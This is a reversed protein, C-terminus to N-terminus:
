AKSSRRVLLALLVIHTWFLLPVGLSPIFFAAHLEPPVNYVPGLAAARVLDFVGWLNFIWLMWPFIRSSRLALSLLALTAAAVDGWAAGNTWAPNIGNGTVGPAIFALGIYRFAHLYLLPEAATRLDQSKAWPWLYRRVVLGWVALGFVVAILFPRAEPNM